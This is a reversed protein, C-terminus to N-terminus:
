TTSSDRQSFGQQRRGHSRRLIQPILARCWKQLARGGSYSNSNFECYPYAPSCVLKQLKDTNQKGGSGGLGSLIAPISTVVWQQMEITFKTHKGFFCANKHPNIGVCRGKHIMYDM